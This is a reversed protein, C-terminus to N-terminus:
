DELLSPNPGISIELNHGLVSRFLKENFAPQYFGDNIVLHGKPLRCFSTEQCPETGPLSAPDYGPPPVRFSSSRTPDVIAEFRLIGREVWLPLVCLVPLCIALPEHHLRDTVHDGLRATLNWRASGPKVPFLSCEGLQIWPVRNMDETLLVIATTTAQSSRTIPRLDLQELLEIM